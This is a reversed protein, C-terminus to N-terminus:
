VTVPVRSRAGSLSVGAETPRMEVVAIREPRGGGGAAAEHLVIDERPADGGQGEAGRQLREFGEARPSVQIQFLDTAHRADPGVFGAPQVM